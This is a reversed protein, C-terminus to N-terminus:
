RVFGLRLWSLIVLLHVHKPLNGHCLLVGFLALGGNTLNPTQRRLPSTM